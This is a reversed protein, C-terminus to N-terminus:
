YKTMKDQKRAWLKRDHLSLTGSFVRRYSSPDRRIVAKIVSIETTKNGYITIQKNTVRLSSDESKRQGQLLNLEVFSHFTALIQILLCNVHLLSFRLQKHIFIHTMKPQINPRLQLKVILLDCGFGCFMEKWVCRMKKALTSTALDGM